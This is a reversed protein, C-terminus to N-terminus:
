FETWDRKCFWDADCFTRICGGLAYDIGVEGKISTPDPLGYIMPIAQDGKHCKPCVKGEIYKNNPCDIPFPISYLTKKNSTLKISEMTLYYKETVSDKCLISSAVIIIINGAPISSLQISNDKRLITDIKFKESQVELRIPRGKLSTALEPLIAIHVELETQSKPLTALLTILITILIKM